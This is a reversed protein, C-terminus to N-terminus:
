NCQGISDEACIRGDIWTAGSLDANEFNTGNIIAGTLDAEFLNTNSFNANTLDSNTLNVSELDSESFNASNLITNSLNSKLDNGENDISKSLDSGSFNANSLNGNSINIGSLYSNSVDSYKFSSYSVNSNTLNSGSLNIKELNCNICQSEQILKGVNDSNNIYYMKNIDSGNFDYSIHYFPDKNESLVEKVLNSVTLIEESMYSDLPISTDGSTDITNILFSRYLQKLDSILALATTKTNIYIGPTTLSEWDLGNWKIFTRLTMHSKEVGGIRKTTELVYIDGNSPRFDNSPNITFNGQSDTLGTAQVYNSYDIISVSSGELVDALQAKSTFKYNEKLKPFEVKGKIQYNSQKKSLQEVKIPEYTNLSTCSIQFISSLLLLLLKSYHKKNM